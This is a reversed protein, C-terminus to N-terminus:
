DISFADSDGDRTLHRRQVTMTATAMGMLREREGDAQVGVAEMTKVCEELIVRREAATAIDCNAICEAIHEPVRKRIRVALDGAAHDFPERDALRLFLRCRDQVAVIRSKAWGAHQNLAAWALDLTPDPGTPIPPSEVSSAEIDFARRAGFQRRRQRSQLRSRRGIRNFVVFLAVAAIVTVATTPGARALTSSIALGGLIALAITVFRARIFLLLGGFVLAAVILAAFAFVILVIPM